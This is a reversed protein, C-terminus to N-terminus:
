KFAWFPGTEGGLKSVPMGNDFGMYITKGFYFTMGLDFYALGALHGMIAGLNSFNLNPSYLLDSANGINISTNIFSNHKDQNQLNLMIDGNPCYIYSIGDANCTNINNDTFFYLNSGTDLFGIMSEANFKTKMGIPIIGQDKSPYINVNAANVDNDTNTGIGFIAYGTVPASGDDGVMPFKLTLGNFKAAIPNKVYVTSELDNTVQNCNGSNDCTYYNHYYSDLTVPGVGLIGNAGFDSPSTTASACSESKAGPYTADIEQIPIMGSSEDGLKISAYMIPGWNQSGDGYSVCEALQAGSEAVHTLNLGTLFQKFVRLGFSGTDLLVDPVTNCTGSENCITVNVLPMNINRFTTSQSVKVTMHPSSPEPITQAPNLTGGGSGSSGGGGGGNCACLTIATVCVIILRKM